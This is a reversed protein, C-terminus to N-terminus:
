LFPPFFANDFPKLAVGEIEVLWGPRCVAAELLLCPVEGPIHQKIIKEVQSCSSPDRLYVKLYSMDELGAGHPELLARINDLTRETQKKVDGPYLLEGHSGISATGSIHFHTRDGFLVKLGREFTVGYKITPSLNDLAEMRVVQGPQLGGMSLSDMSVLSAADGSAGEIGTSALFRTKETLGHRTFFERRSTVMGPYHNDIDRVFIWTRLTNDLLNMGKENMLDALSTFLEDSQKRSDFYTNGSYAATWLMQYNKGQVVVGNPGKHAGPVLQQKKLKGAEQRVHYSFLCM